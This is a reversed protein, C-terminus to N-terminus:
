LCRGIDIFVILHARIKCGGVVVTLQGIFTFYIGKLVIFQICTYLLTFAIFCFFIYYMLLIYMVNFMIMEIFSVFHLSLVSKVIFSTLTITFCAGNENAKQGKVYYNLYGYLNSHCVCIQKRFTDKQYQCLGVKKGLM